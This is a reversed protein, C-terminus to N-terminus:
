HGDPIIFSAGLLICFGANKVTGGEYHKNINLLGLSFNEELSITFWSTLFCSIGMSEQLGFDFQHIDDSASGIETKTVKEYYNKYVYTWSIGDKSSHLICNLYPSLNCHFQVKKGTSFEPFIYLRLCDLKYHINKGNALYGGFEAEWNFSAQYFILSAGLHFPRPRREKVDLKFCYSPYSSRFLM